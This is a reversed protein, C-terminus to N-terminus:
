LKLQMVFVFPVYEPDVAELAMDLVTKIGYRDVEQMSFATIGLEEIIKRFLM